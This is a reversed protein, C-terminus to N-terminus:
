KKANRRLKEEVQELAKSKGWLPGKMGGTSNFPNNRSINLATRLSIQKKYEIQSENCEMEEETWSESGGEWMNIEVDLMESITTLNLQTIQKKDIEGLTFREELGQPYKGIVAQYLRDLARMIAVGKAQEQKGKAAILRDIEKQVAEDIFNFYEQPSIVAM